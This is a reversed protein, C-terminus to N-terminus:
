FRYLFAVEHYAKSVNRRLRAYTIAGFVILYIYNEHKNWKDIKLDMEPSKCSFPVPSLVQM